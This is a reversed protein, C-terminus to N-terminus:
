SLCHYKNEMLQSSELGKKLGHLAGEDNIPDKILGGGM